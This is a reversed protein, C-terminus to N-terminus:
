IVFDTTAPQRAAEAVLESLTIGALTQEVAASARRWVWSTPCTVERGCTQRLCPIADPDGEVARVIDAVTVAAPDTALSFGGRRGRHSNVYGAARLRTIIQEVYNPSIGEHRGIEFKTAPRGGEFRALYVMIRTAYRGKTTISFM